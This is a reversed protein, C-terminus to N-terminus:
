EWDEDDWTVEDEEAESALVDRFVRLEERVSLAQRSVYALYGLLGAWVVGYALALYWLEDM